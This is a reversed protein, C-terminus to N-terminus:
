AHKRSKSEKKKEPPTRNSVAAVVMLTPDHRQGTLAVRGCAYSVVPNQTGYVRVREDVVTGCGDLRGCGPGCIGIMCRESPDREKADHPPGDRVTSQPCDRSFPSHSDQRTHSFSLGAIFKNGEMSPGPAERPLPTLFVASM